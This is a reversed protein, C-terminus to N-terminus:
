PILKIFKDVCKLFVIVIQTFIATICYYLLLLTLPSSVKSIFHSYPLFFQMVIHCLLLSAVFKQKKTAKSSQQAIRVKKYISTAEKENLEISNKSLQTDNNKENTKIKSKLKIFYNENKEESTAKESFLLYKLVQISNNNRFFITFVKIVRYKM